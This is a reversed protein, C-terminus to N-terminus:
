LEIGNLSIQERYYDAKEFDKSARANKWSTILEIQEFTLKDLHQEIGFVYLIENMLKLVENLYNNDIEKARTAQNIIKIVKHLCTLANATNFDNSMAEIFEEKIKLLEENELKLEVFEGELEIKRFLSVYAKRVKSADNLAQNILEDCFNLPQRYPVTLTMLRYADVGIKALLDKAWIVNGLSKSMKEGKLDLRGNHIWYNAIHNDYMCTAQAIENDHHPFKLDLGGGHIDIMGKFFQNIMVVCETHWGPRGEGWPSRWKKGDQTKKWLAFDMPSHKKTNEEIRAGVVLNEITQGSLIGYDHAKTVDFYVDGDIEYADGKSVLESIFEIIEDMTDTVKPNKAKKLCNLGACVEEYAAIYRESIETESVNELIAQKIIKDDIDTYNSVHSVKYGMYRFFRDVVDFFILPRTNGIHAYNYVTPGCVYMSVENEKIPKFEEIKNTLSNYIKMM